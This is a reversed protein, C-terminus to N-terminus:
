GRAICTRIRTLICVHKHHNGNVLHQLSELFGIFQQFEDDLHTCIVHICHFLVGRYLPCKWGIYHWYM